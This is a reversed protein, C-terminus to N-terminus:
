WGFDRSQSAERIGGLWEGTEIGLQDVHHETRFQAFREWFGAKDATLRKYDTVSLLVAVPEGRRTLEVPGGGEADHVLKSLQNKAEAISFSKGM